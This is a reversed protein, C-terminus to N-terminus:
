AVAACEACLPVDDRGRTTARQGCGECPRFGCDCADCTPCVDRGHPCEVAAASELAVRFRCTKLHGTTIPDNIRM